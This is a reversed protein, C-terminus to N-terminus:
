PTGTVTLTVTGNYQSQSRHAVRLQYYYGQRGVTTSLYPISFTGNGKQILEETANVGDMKRFVYYMSAISENADIGAVVLRADAGTSSEKLASGAYQGSKQTFTMAVPGLTEAFAMVTFLVLCLAICKMLKSYKKM